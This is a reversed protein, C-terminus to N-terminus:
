NEPSLSPRYARRPAFDSVYKQPRGPRAVPRLPTIPVSAVPAPTKAQAQMTAPKIATHPRRVTAVSAAAPVAQLPKSARATQIREARVQSDTQLLNKVKAPRHHKRNILWIMFVGAQYSVIMPSSVLFLAVPNPNPNMLAGGVISVVIVWRQVSFSLLKKPKLPKIRNIILLILPVQLLLASGLMYVTVFSMYSQITLLPQIQATVFQNLLFHLAAPLGIFYGFTMGIAALIGSAISGWAVVRRTNFRLLPEMYRLIQYVIVPISCAIGVYLCVRFLFDLGGGPSTYIFKQHEAPKLLWNVITHEVGYAACSFVTVSIAVYFLRRRLEHVHELFPQKQASKLLPNTTQRRKTASKAKKM